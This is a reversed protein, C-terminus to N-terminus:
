NPLLNHSTTTLYSSFSSLSSPHSYHSYLYFSPHPILLFSFCFGPTNHSFIQDSPKAPEPISPSTCPLDHKWVAWTPLYRGEKHQLYYALSGGEAWGSTTLQQWNNGKCDCVVRAETSGILQWVPKLVEQIGCFSLFGWSFTSIKPPTM